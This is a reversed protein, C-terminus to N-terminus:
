MCTSKNIMYNAKLNKAVLQVSVKIIFFLFEFKVAVCRSLIRAAM